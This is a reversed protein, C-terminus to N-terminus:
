RRHKVNRKKKMSKRRLRRRGRKTSRTGGNTVSSLESAPINKTLTGNISVNYTGNKQNIDSIEGKQGNYTVNNGIDYKHNKSSPLVANVAGKVVNAAGKATNVTGEKMGKYGSALSGLVTKKRESQVQLPQTNSGISSATDQKPVADVIKVNDIDSVSFRDTAKFQEKGNEDNISFGEFGTVEGNENLIAKSIVHHKRNTDADTAKTFTAM